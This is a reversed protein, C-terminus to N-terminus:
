LTSVMLTTTHNMRKFTYMPPFTFSALCYQRYLHGKSFYWLHSQYCLVALKYHCFKSLKTRLRCFNFIPTSTSVKVSIKSKVVYPWLHKTETDYQNLNSLYKISCRTNWLDITQVNSIYRNKTNQLLFAIAHIYYFRQFNWCKKRSTPITCLM